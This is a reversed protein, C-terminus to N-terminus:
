PEEKPPTDAASTWFQLWAKVRMEESLEEDPVGIAEAMSKIWQKYAALSRDAPRSFFIKREDM